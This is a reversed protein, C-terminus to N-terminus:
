LGPLFSYDNLYRRIWDLAMMAAETKIRDRSGQFRYRGSFLEKESCFGLHVTGVPKEFSGGGPGAIGSVAVGIDARLRGRVGSAMECATSGSVAGHAHLTDPNVGLLDMKAENSYVICGGKFYESSGAEGTLLHGILGGTCSEALAVSLGHRRLLGGVVHAMTRDGVAFVFAGLLDCAANQVRELIEHAQREDLGRFNLTVHIEPFRPYFGFIVDPESRQLDDLIEAVRSEGIGYLKLVRQFLRDLPGYVRMIGPIVFHDLLRRMQEPVGPLFFFDADGGKIKFGCSTGEPDLPEAGEPLMALKELPRNIKAGTEDAYRLLSRYVEPHRILRLRFAGAAIECTIDDVTSGLGGTVIVFGGRRMAQELESSVARQDDGLCTIRTVQLGADILRRCAYRSNVDLVKGSTLEDGITIIECNM